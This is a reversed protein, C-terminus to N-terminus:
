LSTNIFVVINCRKLASQMQIRVLHLYALTKEAMSEGAALKGTYEPNDVIYDLGFRSEM